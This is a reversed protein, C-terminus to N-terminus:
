RIGGFLNVQGSAECVSGPEPTYGFEAAEAESTYYIKPPQPAAIEIRVRYDM